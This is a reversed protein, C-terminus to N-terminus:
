RDAIQLTGVALDVIRRDEDYDDPRGLPDFTLVTLMRKPQLEVVCAYLRSGPDVLPSDRFEIELHVAQHGEVDVAESSIVARMMDGGM